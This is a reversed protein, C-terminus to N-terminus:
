TIEYRDHRMEVMEGGYQMANYYQREENTERKAESALDTVM